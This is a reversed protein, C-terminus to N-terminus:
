AAGGETQRRLRALQRSIRRRTNPCTTNARELEAIRAERVRHADIDAMPRRKM